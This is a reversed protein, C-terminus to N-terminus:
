ENPQYTRQLPVEVIVSDGPCILGPLEVSAVVGRLHYAAKKFLGVLEPRAYHEALIKAPGSCPFNEEEVRLVVGGSFVLRTRAPLLSLRPIGSLQLNAGLWEPLVEPANLAAAVQAMEEDSLISVQRDNRIETGRPYYPTRSDSPRTLGSHKDGTFGDFTVQAQPLRTSILSGPDTAVLVASVAGTLKHSVDM